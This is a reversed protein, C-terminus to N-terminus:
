SGMHLSLSVTENIILSDFKKLKGPFFLFASFYSRWDSKKANNRIQKVAHQKM